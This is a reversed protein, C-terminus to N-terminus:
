ATIIYNCDRRGTPHEGEEVKLHGAAILGELLRRVKPRQTKDARDIGMADAVYNGAWHPSRDSERGILCRLALKIAQLQEPTIAGALSEADPWRWETAVGVSDSFDLMSGGNGFGGNHLDVSIMRRWKAGAGGATLNHKPNTVRFISECDRPALGAKVAEDPTMANLVRTSRTKNVLAAAGMADDQTLEKGSGKRTHAVIEFAVNTQTAIKKFETVLPQIHRNSNGDISHFSVFPDLIVVDIEFHEINAIVMESTASVINVGDREEKAFTFVDSDASDILLRDGIDEPTLKYHMMAASVRRELEEYDDEANVYWVRYKERGPLEGLLSRGSVMALGEVLALSSKGTGGPAFTGSLEKRIFHAGYIWPRRPITAPERWKFPTAIVPRTPPAILGGERALMQGTAIRHVTAADVEATALNFVTM